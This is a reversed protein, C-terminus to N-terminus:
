FLNPFQDAIAFPASTVRAAGSREYFASQCNSTLPQTSDRDLALPSSSNRILCIAARPYSHYIARTMTSAPCARSSAMSVCSIFSRIVSTPGPWSVPSCGVLNPRTAGPPRGGSRHITRERHDPHQVPDNAFRKGPGGTWSEANAGHVVEWSRSSAVAVGRFTGFSRYVRLGAKYLALVRERFM